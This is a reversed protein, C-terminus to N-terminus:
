QRHPELQEAISYYVTVVVGAGGSKFQRASSAVHQIDTGPPLTEAWRNLLEELHEPGTGEFVKFPM